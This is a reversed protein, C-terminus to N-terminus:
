RIERGGGEWTLDKGFPQKEGTHKAQKKDKLLNQLNTVNRGDRMYITYKKETQGFKM